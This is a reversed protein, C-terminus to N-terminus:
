SETVRTFIRNFRTCTLNFEKRDQLNQVLHAITKLIQFIETLMRSFTCVFFNMHSQAYMTYLRVLVFVYAIVKYIYSVNCM